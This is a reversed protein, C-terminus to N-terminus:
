QNTPQIKTEQVKVCLSALDLMSRPVRDRLITDLREHMELVVAYQGRRMATKIKSLEARDAKYYKAMGDGRTDPKWNDIRTQFESMVYNTLDELTLQM